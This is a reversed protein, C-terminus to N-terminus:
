DDDEADTEDIEPLDRIRDWPSQHLDRYVLKLADVADRTYIEKAQEILGSLRKEM